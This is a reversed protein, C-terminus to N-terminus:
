ILGELRARRFSSGSAVVEAKTPEQFVTSGSWMGRERLKVADTTVSKLEEVLQPDNSGTRTTRRLWNIAYARALPRINDLDAQLYSSWDLPADIHRRLFADAEALAQDLRAQAQADKDVQPDSSRFAARLLEEVYGSGWAAELYVRDVLTAM